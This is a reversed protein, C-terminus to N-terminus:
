YNTLSCELLVTTSEIRRVAATTKRGVSTKIAVRGIKSSQKRRQESRDKNGGGLRLDDDDDDDPKIRWTPLLSFAFYM